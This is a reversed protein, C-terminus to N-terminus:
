FISSKARIRENVFDVLKLGTPTLIRFNVDEPTLQKHKNVPLPKPLARLHYYAILSCNVSKEHPQM